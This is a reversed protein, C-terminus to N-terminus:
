GVQYKHSDDPTNECKGGNLPINLDSLDINFSSIDRSSVSMGDFQDKINESPIKSSETTTDEPYPKQSYFTDKIVRSLGKDNIWLNFNKSNAVGKIDKSTQQSSEYMENGKNLPSSSLLKYESERVEKVKPQHDDQMEDTEFDFIRRGQEIDESEFSRL